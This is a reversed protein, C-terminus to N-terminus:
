GGAIPPWIAVEDGPELRRSDREQPPVYVGNVVVLKAMEPPVRSQEIVDKLRADALVDIEAKNGSAGSPLLRELGAFLKLTIKM